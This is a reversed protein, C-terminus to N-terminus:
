EGKEIAEQRQRIYAYDDAAAGPQYGVVQQSCYEAKHNLWDTTTCGCRKCTRRHEDFDHPGADMQESM